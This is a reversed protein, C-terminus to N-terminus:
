TDISTLPTSFATIGKQAQEIDDEFLDRDVVMDMVEQNTQGYAVLVSFSDRLTEYFSQVSGSLVWITDKVFVVSGLLIAKATSEQEYTIFPRQILSKFATSIGSITTSISGFLGMSSVIKFLQKHNLCEQVYFRKLQAMFISMLMHQNQLNYKSFCLKVNKLNSLLVLFFKLTPNM